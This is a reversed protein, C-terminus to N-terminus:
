KGGKKVAPLETSLSASSDILFDYVLGLSNAHALAPASPANLLQELGHVRGPLLYWQASCGALHFYLSLIVVQHVPLPVRNQRTIIFGTQSKQIRELSHVFCNPFFQMNRTVSLHLLILCIFKLIYTSESYSYITPTIEKKKEKKILHTNQPPSPLLKYDLQAFKDKLM